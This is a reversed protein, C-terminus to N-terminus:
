GVSSNTLPPLQIFIENESPTFFGTLLVCGTGLIDVVKKTQAFFLSSNMRKQTEDINVNSLQKRKKCIWKDRKSAYTCEETERKPSFLSLFFTIRKMKEERFLLFPFFFFLFTSFSSIVLSLPFRFLSFVKEMRGVTHSLSLKKQTLDSM